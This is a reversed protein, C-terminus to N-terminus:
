KYEKGNVIFGNANFVITDWFNGGKSVYGFGFGMAWANPSNNLYAPNRHCACPMVIGTIPHLPEVRRTLTAAEFRHFHGCRINVGYHAVMTKAPHATSKITDGHIFHLKGLKYLGGREIIKVGEMNIINKIELLGSLSPKEAMMTETRIDHNGKLWIIEANLERAPTLLLKEALLYENRVSDPFEAIPQGKRWKGLQDFHNQDGGFIIKDPKFDAAFQWILNLFKVDHAPKQKWGDKSTYEAEYGVHADFISIFKQENM